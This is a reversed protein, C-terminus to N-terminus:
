DRENDNDHSLLVTIGLIEEHIMSLFEDSLTATNDEYYHDVVRPRRDSLRIVDPGYDPRKLVESLHDAWDIM